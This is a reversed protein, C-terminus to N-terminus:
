QLIKALWLTRDDSSGLWKAATQWVGSFAESSPLSSSLFTSAFALDILTLPSLTTRLSWFPNFDGSAALPSASSGMPWVKFPLASDPSKSLSCKSAKFLARFTM